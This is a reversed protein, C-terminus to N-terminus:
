KQKDILAALDAFPRTTDVIELDEQEVIAIAENKLHQCEGADRHMPALPLSALVEDEIADLLRVGEEGAIIADFADALKECDRESRVVM